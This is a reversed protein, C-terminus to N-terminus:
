NELPKAKRMRKKIATIKEGYQKTYKEAWDPGNIVVAANRRTKVSWKVVGMYEGNAFQLYYGQKGANAKSIANALADIAADQNM